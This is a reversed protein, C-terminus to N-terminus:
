PHKWDKVVEYWTEESISQNRANGWNERAGGGCKTEGESVGLDRQKMNVTEESLLDEENCIRIWGIIRNKM